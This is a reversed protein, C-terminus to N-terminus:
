KNVKDEKIENFTQKAGLKEAILLEVLYLARTGQHAFIGSIAVAVLENVGLGYAASFALVALFGSSLVDLLFFVVRKGWSLRSLDRRFFSIVAGILGIVLVIIYTVVPIDTIKYM